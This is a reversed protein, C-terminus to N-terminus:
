PGAAYGMQTALRRVGSVFALFSPSGNRDDRLHDAMLRAGSRKQFEPILRELEVSPKRWTDPQAFRKRLSPTDLKHEPYASALAKMDGIYWGELEQCVLRVLTDPRGHQACLQVLRAKIDICDAGDNDRVVVFRDGPVRWERLKIRLSRELDSKGDHPLCQFDRDKEWGPLLRPLLGDLLVKMSPEELLFIIRGQM